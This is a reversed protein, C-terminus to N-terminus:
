LQGIPQQRGPVGLNRHRRSHNVYKGLQEIPTADFFEGRHQMTYAGDDQPYDKLYHSLGPYHRGFYSLSFGKPLDRVCHGLRSSRLVSKLRDRLAFAFRDRRAPKQSYRATTPSATVATSRLHQDLTAATAASTQNALVLGVLVLGHAVTAAPGAV